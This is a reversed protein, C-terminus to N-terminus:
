VMATHATCSGDANQTNGFCSGTEWYCDICGYTQRYWTEGYVKRYHEVALQRMEGGSEASEDCLLQAAALVEDHKFETLATPHHWYAYATWDILRYLPADGALDHWFHRLIAQQDLAVRMDVREAPIELEHINYNILDNTDPLAPLFTYRM